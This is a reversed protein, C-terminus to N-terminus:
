DLIDVMETAYRVETAWMISVLVLMALCNQQEPKEMIPVVLLVVFIALIIVLTFFTSSFLWSPCIYNGLPTRLEKTSPPGDADGQLRAKTPDDDAGLLTRRLGM